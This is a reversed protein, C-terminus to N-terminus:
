PLGTGDDFALIKDAGLRHKRPWNGPAAYGVPLLMVPLYREAIKFERRVGDPDFGIMPGSVLGRDQAALMLTMAAMSASRVAEDRAIRADSYMQSAMGVWTEVISASLLGAKVSPELTAALDEHARLDGLVIFTVAADAVKQQGFAVAKLREKDEKNVVAVFRWHQINFASPAQAAQEVLEKVVPAGLPRAADFKNVSLRSRIAEITNM